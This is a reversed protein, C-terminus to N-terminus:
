PTAFTVFTYFTGTGLTATTQYEGATGGVTRSTSTTGTADTMMTGTVGSGGGSITWNVSAGAVPNHYSDTVRVVLPDPAITFVATSQSDGSVATVVTAPGPVGTATYTVPSGTLGDASATAHNIATGATTGITWITSAVGLGDTSVPGVAAVSGGGATVAFTVAVGAVPKGGADVVRAGIPTALATGVVGTQVSGSALGIASPTSAPGSGGDSSCGVVVLSAAALRLFNREFTQRMTQEQALRVSSSHVVIRASDPLM